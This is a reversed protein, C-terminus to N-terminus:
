GVSSLYSALSQGPPGPGDLGYKKKGVFYFFGPKKIKPPPDAVGRRFIFFGALKQIRLPTLDWIPGPKPWGPWCGRLGQALGAGLRESKHVSEPRPGVRKEIPWDRVETPWVGLKRPWVECM